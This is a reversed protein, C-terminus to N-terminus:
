KRESPAQTAALSAVLMQAEKWASVVPRGVAPKWPARPNAQVTKALAEQSPSLWRFVETESRRAYLAANVRVAQLETMPVFRLVTHSAVAHKAGEPRIKTAEPLPSFGQERAKEALTERSIQSPDFRVEVVERSGAWGECTAIM